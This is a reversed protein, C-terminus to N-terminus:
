NRLERHFIQCCFIFYQSSIFNFLSIFLFRNYCHPAKWRPTSHNNLRNLNNRCIQKPRWCSTWPTRKDSRCVLVRFRFGIYYILYFKL